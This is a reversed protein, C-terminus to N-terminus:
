FNSEDISEGKAITKLKWKNASDKSYVQPAQISQRIGGMRQQISEYIEQAREPLTRLIAPPLESLSKYPM